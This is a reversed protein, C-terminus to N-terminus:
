TAVSARDVAIPARANAINLKKTHWSLMRRFKLANAAEVAPSNTQNAAASPRSCTNILHRPFHDVELERRQLFAAPVLIENAKHEPSQRSTQCTRTASKPPGDRPPRKRANGAIKRALAVRMSACSRRRFRSLPKCPLRRPRCAAARSAAPAVNPLAPRKANAM